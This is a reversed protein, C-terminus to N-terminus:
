TPRREASLIFCFKSGRAPREGQAPLSPSEVRIKGSHAEVAMKVFALGLGTSIHKGVEHDISAFKEFIKERYDAPVGPGEDAVCFEVESGVREVNVRITSGRPSFRLANGLLNVLVRKIMVEDAYLPPLGEGASFEITVERQKALPEVQLIAARAVERPWLDEQQLVLANSEMAHLSLLDGIMGMMDEGTALSVDLLEAHEPSLKAREEEYILRLVNLMGALPTRLDHVILATLEERARNLRELQRAHARARQRDEQVEATITGLVVLLILWLFDAEAYARHPLVKEVVHFLVVSVVPVLIGGFYGLYLGGFIVPFIYLYGAPFTRGYTQDIYAIVGEMVMITLVLLFTRRVSLGLFGPKKVASGRGPTQQGQKM